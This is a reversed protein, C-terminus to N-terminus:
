TIVWNWLQNKTLMQLKKIKKYRKMENLLKKIRHWAHDQAEWSELSKRPKRATLYPEPVKKVELSQKTSELRTYNMCRKRKAERLLTMSILESNQSMKQSATKAINQWMKRIGGAASKNWKTQFYTMIQSSIFESNSCHFYEFRSAWRATNASCDRKSKEYKIHKNQSITSLAVSKRHM